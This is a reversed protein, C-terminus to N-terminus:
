DRKFLTSGYYEGRRRKQAQAVILEATEDLSLKRTKAHTLMEGLQTENLSQTVSSTVCLFWQGRVPKGQSRKIPLGISDEVLRASRVTEKVQPLERKLEDSFTYLKVDGLSGAWWNHDSFTICISGHTAQAKLVARNIYKLQQMILHDRAESYFRKKSLISYTLAATEVAESATLAAGNGQVSSFVFCQDQVKNAVTAEKGVPSQYFGIQM